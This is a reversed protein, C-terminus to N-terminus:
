RVPFLVVFSQSGQKKVPQDQKPYHPNWCETPQPSPTQKINSYCTVRFLNNLIKATKQRCDETPLDEIEARHVISHGM